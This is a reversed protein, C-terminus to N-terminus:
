TSGGAALGGRASRRREEPDAEGGRGGSASLLSEVYQVAAQCLEGIAARAYESHADAGIRSGHYALAAVLLGSFRAEVLPDAHLETLDDPLRGRLDVHLLAAHYFIARGRLQFIAAATLSGGADCGHRSASYGEAALKLSVRAEAARPSDQYDIEVTSHGSGNLIRTKAM